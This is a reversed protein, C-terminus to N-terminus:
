KLDQSQKPKQQEMEIRGDLLTLMVKKQIVVVRTCIFMMIKRKNYKYGIALLEVEEKTTIELVLHSGAPYNKMKEELFLKPYGSHATKIVGIYHYGRLAMELATEVSSFWSDGLYTQPPIGVDVKDINTNHDRATGEAMRLVCATTAKHNCAYKESQMPLAGKQIELYLMVQTVTDACVKFETGLPEPKRMISSLHPLNGTKMTQPRSASM